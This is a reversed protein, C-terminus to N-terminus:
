YSVSAFASYECGLSLVDCTFDVSGRTYLIHSNFPPRLSATM